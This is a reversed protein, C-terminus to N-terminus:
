RRRGAPRRPAACPLWSSSAGRGRRYRDAPEVRAEEGDIGFMEDAEIGTRSRPFEILDGPEVPRRGRREVERRYGPRDEGLDSGAIGVGVPRDGVVAEIAALVPQKRDSRAARDVPWM